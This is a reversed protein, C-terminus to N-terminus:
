SPPAESTGFDPVPEQAPAPELPRLRSRRTVAWLVAGVVLLAFPFVAAHAFFWQRMTSVSVEVSGILVFKVDPHGFVFRFGRIESNARVAALALQDWPLLYGSIAVTVAGLLLVFGVVWAPLGGRLRREYSVGISIGFTALAAFVFVISTVRHTVRLLSEPRAGKFSGSPQYRFVLWLGSGLLVVFVVALVLVAVRQARQLATREVVDVVEDVMSWVRPSRQLLPTRLDALWEAGSALRSSSPIRKLRSELLLL